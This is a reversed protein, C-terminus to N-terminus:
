INRVDIKEYESHTGIFRVFIYQASFNIKCVLRYKNGCINFVYRKNGVYDVSLVDDKIDNIHRWESESALQFWRLLARESDGRGPLNYFDVLQKRKIVKM